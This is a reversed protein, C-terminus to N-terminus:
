GIVAGQRRSRRLHAIAGAGAALLLLSLSSPEPVPDPNLLFARYNGGYLGYGVIQGSENISTAETLTWGSGPPLFSNLDLMTEDTYLFAHTQGGITAKGVIQGAENVEDAYSNEGAGLTGLDDMLNGATSRFAHTTGDAATAYGVVLNANNIDMGRANCSSGTQWGTQDLYVIDGSTTSKYFAYTGDSYGAYGTYYGPDNIATARETILHVTGDYWYKSNINWLGVATDSENIDYMQVIGASGNNGVTTFTTGDYIFGKSAVRNLPYNGVIHGLNNISTASSDNSWNGIRQMSGADYLFAHSTSNGLLTSEGVIAGNDNISWAKSYVGGLTGLNMFTYGPAALADGPMALLPLLLAILACVLRKWACVRMGSERKNM